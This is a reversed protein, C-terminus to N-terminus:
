YGTLLLGSFEPHQEIYTDVYSCSPIVKYNNKQAFLLGAQVVKAAIGKGRLEPPVYTKIMNITKEGTIIYKLYAEKSDLITFFKQNYTDHKIELEM